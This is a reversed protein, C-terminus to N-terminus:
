EGGETYKPILILVSLPRAFPDKRNAGRIPSGGWGAEV